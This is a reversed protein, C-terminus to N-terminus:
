RGVSLSKGSMVISSIGKSTRPSLRLALLTNDWKIKCLYMVKVVCLTKNDLTPRVFGNLCCRVGRVSDAPHSVHTSGLPIFPIRASFDRLRRDGARGTEQFMKLLRSLSAPIPVSHIRVGSVHSLSSITSVAPFPRAPPSM